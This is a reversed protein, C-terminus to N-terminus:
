CGFEMLSGELLDCAQLKNHIDSRHINGCGVTITREPKDYTICREEITYPNVTLAAANNIVKVRRKATIIGHDCERWSLLWCQIGQWQGM